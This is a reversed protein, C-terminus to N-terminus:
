VWRGQGRYKKKYHKSPKAGTPGGGANGYKTRKGMGQRTKKKRKSSESDYLGMLKAM